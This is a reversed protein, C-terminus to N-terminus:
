GEKTNERELEFLEQNLDNIFQERVKKYKILLGLVIYNINEERM